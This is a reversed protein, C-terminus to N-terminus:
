AVILEEIIAHGAELCVAHCKSDYLHFGSIWADSDYVQKNTDLQYNTMISSLDRTKFHAQNHQSVFHKMEQIFKCAALTEKEFIFAILQYPRAKRQVDHTFSEKILPAALTVEIHM